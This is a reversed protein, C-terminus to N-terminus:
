LRRTLLSKPPSALTLQSRNCSQNSTAALNMSKVRNPTMSSKLLRLFPMLKFLRTLKKFVQHRLLRMKKLLYLSSPPVLQNARRVSQLMLSEQSSILKQILRLPWIMTKKEMMLPWSKTLAWVELVSSTFIRSQRHLCRHAELSNSITQGSNILNKPSRTRIRKIIWQSTSSRSPSPPTKTPQLTSMQRLNAKCTSLKLRIAYLNAMLRRRM